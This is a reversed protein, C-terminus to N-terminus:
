YALGELSECMSVFMKSRSRETTAGSLDDFWDALKFAVIADIEAAMGKIKQLDTSCRCPDCQCVPCYNLNHKIQEAYAEVNNPAKQEELVEKVQVLAAKEVHEIIKDVPDLSAESLSLTIHRKCMGKLQIQKTCGAVSCRPKTNKTTKPEVVRLPKGTNPNIGLVSKEHKWCM